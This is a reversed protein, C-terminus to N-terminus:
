GKTRSTEESLLCEFKTGTTNMVEFSDVPLFSIFATMNNTNSVCQVYDQAFDGIAHFNDVLTQQFLSTGM